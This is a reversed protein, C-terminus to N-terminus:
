GAGAEVRLWACFADACPHPRAQPQRVIWFAYANALALPFPRVLRGARLDHTVLPGVGLAVGQGAAAAEQALYISDFVTGQRTDVGAEGSAELWAQWDPVGPRGAASEDHLLPHHRLDAPRRLRHPGAEVRARACVPFVPADMLREVQLGDYAGPGYRIAVDVGDRHFDAPGDDTEVRVRCEPHDHQFRHLRPALWKAALSELTSVRLPRDGEARARDVALELETFLTTLSTALRAGAESLEVGRHRRHFLATGLHEELRKVQHSVAAPTVFLEAAAAQLSRHRAAAEFARLAKLPAPPRPKM